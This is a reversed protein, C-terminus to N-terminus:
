QRVMGTESPIRTLHSYNRISEYQANSSRWPSFASVVAVGTIRKDQAAAMLAVSGGITNGMLFINKSDIFDIKELADICAHVDTVMKGMKSWEPFREYFYLGEEMRTGFGYMDIALIAFGKDIMAQFVQDNGRGLEPGYGKAFGHGHAYQHLFVIVPMKKALKMSKTGTANVPYYLMGKLNDGISTYPGIYMIGAGKVQPRGTINDIWDGASGEIKGVHKVGSPEKGM